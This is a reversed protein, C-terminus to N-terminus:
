KLTVTAQSYSSIGNWYGLGFVLTYKGPAADPPVLFVMQFTVSGGTAILGV